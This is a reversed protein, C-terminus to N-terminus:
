PIFLIPKPDLTIASLDKVTMTKGYLVSLETLIAEFYPPSIQDQSGEYGTSGDAAPGAVWSGLGTLYTSPKPGQKKGWESPDASGSRALNSQIWTAVFLNLPPETLDNPTLAKASYPQQTKPNILGTTDAHAMFLDLEKSNGYPSIQMLGVADGSGAREPSINGPQFDSEARINSIIIRSILEPPQEPYHRQAATVIAQATLQKQELTLNDLDGAHEMVKTLDALCMAVTYNGGDATTGAPATAPASPSGTAGGAPANSNQAPAGTQNGDSLVTPGTVGTTVQRSCAALLLAAALFPGAAPLRPAFCFM